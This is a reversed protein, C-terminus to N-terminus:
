KAKQPPKPTARKLVSHPSQNPVPEPSHPFDDDFLRQIAQLTQDERKELMEKEEMKKKEILAEDIQAIESEDLHKTENQEDEVEAGPTLFSKYLNRFKTLAKYYQFAKEKSNMDTRSLVDSMERDLESLEFAQPPMTLNKIRYFKLAEDEPVSVPRAM